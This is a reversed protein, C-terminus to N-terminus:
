GMVTDPDNSLYTKGENNATIVLVNNYQAPLGLETAPKWTGKGLVATLDGPQLVGERYEINKNFGFYSKSNHGHQELYAKLEETADNWSGSTYVRDQVIYSQINGDNIYAYKEGDKLVFTNYLEEKIMTQWHKGM